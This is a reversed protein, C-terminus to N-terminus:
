RERGRRLRRLVEHVCAQVLAEHDLEEPNAPDAPRAVRAASPSAGEGSPEAAQRATARIVLQRIEITM